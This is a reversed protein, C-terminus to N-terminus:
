RSGRLLRALVNRLGRSRAVSPQLRTASVVLARLEAEAPSVETSTMPEPDLEDAPEDLRRSRVRDRLRELMQLLPRIERANGSTISEGRARHQETLRGIMVLTEVPFTSGHTRVLEHLRDDTVELDQLEGLRDQSARLLRLARVGSGGCSDAFFELLYRLRKGRKRLEHYQAHPSTPELAKADRVFKRVDDRVHARAFEDASETKDETVAAALMARMDTVFQRYGASMFRELLATRAAERQERLSAVLPAIANADSWSSAARMAEFREIQVDLDRVSGLAEGIERLAEGRRVLAPPLVDRFVRFAARLRRAAVRMDHLQEVDEGLATGSERALFESFQQRLVVLARTLSTDERSAEHPGLDPAAPHLGAAALGAAFKAGPVAVLGNATRLAEVLAEVENLGGDDTEEVEVRRLQTSTAGATVTTDDLAVEAV